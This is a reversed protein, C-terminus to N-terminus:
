INDSYELQGNEAETILSNLSEKTNIIKQIKKEKKTKHKCLAGDSRFFSWMLRGIFANITQACAALLTM